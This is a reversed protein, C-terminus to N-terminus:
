DIVSLAYYIFLRANAKKVLTSIQNSKGPKNTRNKSHSKIPYPLMVHDIIGWGGNRNTFGM